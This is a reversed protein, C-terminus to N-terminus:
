KTLIRYSVSIMTDEERPAPKSSGTSFISVPRYQTPMLLGCNKKAASFNKGFGFIDSAVSLRSPSDNLISDGSSLKGENMISDLSFRSRKIDSYESEQSPSATISSLPMGYDHASEFMKDGLGPRNMQRSSIDSAVSQRFQENRHMTWATRVGLTDARVPGLDNSVENRLMSGRKKNYISIPPGLSTVSLISDRYRKMRISRRKAGIETPFYFSSADSDLRKRNRGHIFDFTDDVSM